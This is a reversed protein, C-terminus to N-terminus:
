RIWRLLFFAMTGVTAGVIIMAVWYGFSAPQSAVLTSPNSAAHPTPYAHHQLAAAAPDLLMTHGEKKGSVPRMPQAPQAPPLMPAAGLAMNPGVIMTRQSPDAVGIAAASPPQTTRPAPKASGVVTAEGAVITAANAHAGFVPRPPAHPSSAPEVSAPSRTPHPLQQTSLIAQAAAMAEGASQYRSGPEKALLRLIFGSTRESVSDSLPPVDSRLHMSIVQMPAEHFFPVNGALMEYAVVGLSYLDSRADLPLGRGQEPSMYLPTGFVVGAQTRLRDADQLLKAVSFDLVKVFDPAGGMQTLIVNDPKIDRHIIGVSHAEALSACCQIVIKLVRQEAMPGKDMAERLTMGDALEMVMFLEGARTQGFDFMRITNPHALKSCARAENSFRAVWQPDRAVDKSLMKVAVLRDVPMQRAKYVVGMGGEGLRELLQFRGDITQGIRKDREIM